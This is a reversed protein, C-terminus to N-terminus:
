RTRGFHRRVRTETQENRQAVGGANTGSPSDGTPQGEPGHSYNEDHRGRGLKHKAFETTYSFSHGRNTM